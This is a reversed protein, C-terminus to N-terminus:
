VLRVFCLVEVKLVVANSAWEFVATVRAFSTILLNFVAINKIKRLMLQILCTNFHLIYKLTTKWLHSYSFITLLVSGLCSLLSSDMRCATCLRRFFTAIGACPCTSVLLLRGQNWMYICINQWCMLSFKKFFYLKPLHLLLFAWIKVYNGYNAKPVRQPNYPHSAIPKFVFQSGLIYACIDKVKHYQKLYSPYAGQKVSV